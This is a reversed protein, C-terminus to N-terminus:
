QVNKVVVHIRDSVSPASFVWSPTFKVEVGAVHSLGLVYREIEDKKKGFFHEPSLKQANADLVVIVDQRVTLEASNSAMDFHAVSVHPPETTSLFKEATMDISTAAERNILVALDAPNYAVVVFTTTGSLTFSSVEEGAKHDAQVSQNAVTLVVEGNVGANKLKTLFAEQTKQLYEEGASKLDGDSLVGVTQLGGTMPQKSEAYVIKQKQPLLGPITFAAPTIDGGAGPQDAYVSATVQGNAPVVVGEALRFLVGEPSLLRTTKVLPQEASGNNYIIVQGKSQGNVKKNGTPQYKESWFFVTSSVTGKLAQTGIGNENVTVNLNISESDEKTVITIDAKKSTIFIVVGLLVVTILLFSLAIIKYFRVPPELSSQTSLRHTIM